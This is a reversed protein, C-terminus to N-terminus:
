LGGGGCYVVGIGPRCVDKYYNLDDNVSNHTIGAWSFM